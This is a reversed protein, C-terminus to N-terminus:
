APASSAKPLTLGLSQRQQPVPDRGDKERMNEKFFLLQIRVPGAGAPHISGSPDWPRQGGPHTAWPKIGSHRAHLPSPRRSLAPGGAAELRGAQSQKISHNLEDLADRMEKIMFATIYGGYVQRISLNTLARECGENGKIRGVVSHFWCTPVM